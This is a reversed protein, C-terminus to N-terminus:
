KMSDVNMMPVSFPPSSKWPFSSFRLFFLQGECSSCTELGVKLFRNRTHTMKLRLNFRGDLFVPFYVRCLSAHTQTFALTLKWMQCCISM